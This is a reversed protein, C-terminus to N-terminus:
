PILNLNHIAALREPGAAETARRFDAAARAYDMMEMYLVGRNLAAAWLNPNLRLARGYDLIALDHQGLAVHALGRNYFCEAPASSLGICTSFSEISEAHRKLRYTALGRYYHAWYSLPELDLAADFAAIAEEPSRERLLYRGRAIHEWSTNPPVLAEHAEFEPCLLRALAQWQQQLVWSSGFLNEAQQLIQLAEQRSAHVTGAAQLRECLDAWIIGLDRLDAQFGAHQPEGTMEVLMTALNEREMWVNRIEHLVPALEGRNIHEASYLTRLHDVLNHLQQVQELRRFAQQRQHVYSLYVEIRGPLDMGGAWHILRFPLGGALSRGHELLTQAQTLDPKDLCEIGQFLAQEAERYRHYLSSGVSFASGLVVLFTLWLTLALPQRKRWKHWCERADRNAVGRLPRSSLHRELDDALSGADAYREKPDRALCKHIIAELGASVKSNHARLPSFDHAETASPGGLAHYLTLGLGYLDARGDLGCPIPQGARVAKLCEEQEPAMFAPTGGLRQPGSDGVKLPPQALHFDLLMPQGDATLLINAPKLDFHVLGREHAYRLADALCLGIRCIAQVYDADALWGQGPSASPEPVGPLSTQELADSLHKGGREDAPVTQIQELLRDLTTGGFYPMVLARLGERDFHQVAYLPVIHTHQLRALSFSEHDRRLGLPTFKLVVLRRELSLQAALVVKGVAGSGLEAIIEYDGISDGAAPLEPGCADTQIIQHCDLLLGLEREWQPFRKVVDAAAAVSDLEQRLCIEEYVLHAAAEPNDWLDPQKQLFEEVPVREGRRWCRSMEEALRAAQQDCERTPPACLWTPTSLQLYQGHDGPLNAM